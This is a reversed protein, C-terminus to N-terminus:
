RAGRANRDNAATMVGGGQPAAAHRSLAMAEPMWGRIQAIRVDTTPHSAFIAAVANPKTHQAPEMDRRAQWFAPAVQPDFGARAALLLGEHDAESEHERQFPQMVAGERAVGMAVMVAAAAAPNLGDDALQKGTYALALEQRLEKSVRDAVHRALAHVVEHGLAVALEDQAAADNGAQQKVFDILGTDIMIKGGPFAFANIEQNEVVVVEWSLKRAVAAYRGQKAQEVIRNCVPDVFAKDAARTSVTKQRLITRFTWIGLQDVLEPMLQDAVKQGAQGAVPAVADRAAPPALDPIALKPLTPMTFGFAPASCALGSAAVVLMAIRNTAHNM